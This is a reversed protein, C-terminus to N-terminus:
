VTVKYKVNDKWCNRNGTRWCQVCVCVCGEGSERERERGVRYLLIDFYSKQYTILYFVAADVKQLIAIINQYSPYM